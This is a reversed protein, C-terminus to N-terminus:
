VMHAWDLTIMLGPVDNVLKLAAEPTSAMSDLHPEVSVQLGAAQGARVMERLAAVTRDGAEEDEAPHVLGPSLTVGPTGLAAAFPLLSKFLNIENQRKEEDDLSIRPLMLYL